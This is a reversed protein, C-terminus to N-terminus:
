CQETKKTKTKTKTKTKKRKRKKKRKLNEKQKKGEEIQRAKLAKRMKGTLNRWIQTGDGGLLGSNRDSEEGNAADKLSLHDFFFEM